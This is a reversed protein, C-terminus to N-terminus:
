YRGALVNGLTYGVQILAMLLDSGALRLFGHEVMENADLYLGYVRSDAYMDAMRNSLDDECKDTKSPELVVSKLLRNAQTRKVYAGVVPHAFEVASHGSIVVCLNVMEFDLVAIGEDVNTVGYVGPVVDKSRAALSSRSVRYWGLDSSFKTNALQYGLKEAINGAVEKGKVVVIVDWRQERLKAASRAADVITQITQIDVLDTGVIALVTSWRSLLKCALEAIGSAFKNSEAESGPVALDSLGGAIWRIASAPDSARAKVARAVGWILGCITNKDIEVGLSNVASDVQDINIRREDLFHLISPWSQFGANKIRDAFYQRSNWVDEGIVFLQGETKTPKKQRFM